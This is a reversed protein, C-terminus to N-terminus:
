VPVQRTAVTDTKEYGEEKEFEEYKETRRRAGHLKSDM